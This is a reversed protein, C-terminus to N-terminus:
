PQGTVESLMRFFARKRETNLGWNVPPSQYGDPDFYGWGAYESLAAAFNNEEKDFDFHDDENFLIPKPRYGPQQRVRQVMQRIVAPDKVGNGHLIVFDSAAVVAESPIRGGNFSTGVLLRRGRKTTKRVERILLPILEPKLALQQYAKNDCENAVELLVHRYDRGLLFDVTEALARRVAKESELREDQGFYFVSVIPAMGLSDARNLILELRQRYDPLLAGDPRFAGTEWPQDKSYGEPSGGQLGITFSLLGHRRWEPMAALFERTNRAPDWRGTDPYKWRDVTLSNRDDFIGQIMRANLLLGEIKKGKWTRGPYTPKGNLLFRDGDIAIETRSAARALPAALASLLVSRRQM